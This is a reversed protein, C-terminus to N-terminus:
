GEGGRSAKAHRILVRAMYQGLPVGEGDALAQLTALTRPSLYVTRRAKRKHDPLSPRPM